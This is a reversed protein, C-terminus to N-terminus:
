VEQSRLQKRLEADLAEYIDYQQEYALGTEVCFENAISNNRDQSNTLGMAAVLVMLEQLSGKATFGTTQNVIM